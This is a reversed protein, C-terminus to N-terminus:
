FQWLVTGVLRNSAERYYFFDHAAGSVGILSLDLHM